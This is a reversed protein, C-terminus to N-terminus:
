DGHAPDDALAVVGHDALSGLFSRVDSEIQAREVDAFEAHTADVIEALTRAGDILDWIFAGVVNLVLLRKGDADYVIVEGTDQLDHATPILRSPIM